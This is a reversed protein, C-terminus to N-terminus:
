NANVADSSPAALVAQAIENKKRARRARGRRAGAMPALAEDDHEDLPEAHLGVRRPAGVPSAALVTGPPAVTVQAGAILRVGLERAKVHARVMGYVGDRDTIAITDLGHHQAHEVLEEPHSAGELFSYNSKCWLPVYSM